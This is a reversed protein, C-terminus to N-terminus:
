INNEKSDIIITVPGDNILSVKMHSGFGGTKIKNYKEKLNKVFKDYLINADKYNMSEEFSPRNGNKTNAYLTFQSILLIEGDVDDLSLNMKDNEEFIRLKILKNILYNMDEETDSKCIGLLVVFGKNIKRVEKEDIEVSARSVRQIVLRM